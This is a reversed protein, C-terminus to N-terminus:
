EQGDLSKVWKLSKGAEDAVLFVSTRKNGDADEYQEIELRGSVIIRDGKTLTAAMNEALSNWAKIKHWTTIEEENIKRHTAVGCTFVAKNTTTFRLEFDSMNGCITITNM